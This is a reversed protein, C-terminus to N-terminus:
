AKVRSLLVCGAPNDLMQRHSIQSIVVRGKGYSRECLIAAPQWKGDPGLNRSQLVPAFGEAQVTCDALPAICDEASSYWHRFDEQVFGEAWPHGTKASAFHMPAM